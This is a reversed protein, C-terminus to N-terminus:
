KKRSSKKAPARTTAPRIEPLQMRDDVLHDITLGEVARAYALLTLLDPEREGNEYASIKERKVTGPLGLYKAIQTQSLDLYDERIQRLKIALHKPKRRRGTPM